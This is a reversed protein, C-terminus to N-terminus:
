HQRVHAVFSEKNKLRTVKVLECSTREHQYTQNSLLGCDPYLCSLAVIERLLSSMLSKTVSLGIQSLTPSWSENTEFAQEEVHNNGSVLSLRAQQKDNQSIRITKLLGEIAGVVPDTSKNMAIHELLLLALSCLNKHM